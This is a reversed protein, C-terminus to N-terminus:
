SANQHLPDALKGLNSYVSLEKVGDEGAWRVARRISEVLARREKSELGLSGPRSTPGSRGITRFPLCLAVHQPTSIQLVTASSKAFSQTIRLLLSFLSFVLHLLVLLPLALARTLGSAPM